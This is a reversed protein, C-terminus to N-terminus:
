LYSRKTIDIMESRKRLLHQFHGGTEQLCFEARTRLNDAVKFLRERFRGPLNEDIPKLKPSFIFRDQQQCSQGPVQGESLLTRCQNYPSYPLRAHVM